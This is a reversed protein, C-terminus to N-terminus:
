NTSAGKPLVYQIGFDKVNAEIPELGVSERRKNVNAEDEIPFFENLGTEPNTRVQSGYLQKKGMRTLVRDELLALNQPAAKGHKVAARMMPLYNVQTASDAHQIVLFLALAGQQGVEEPGLWGRSDLLSKVAILNTSDQHYIKKWLSDIQPSQWGFTKKISDLMLRDIQDTLYISDLLHALPKDLKADAKLKNQQVKSVLGRWRKDAHLLDLDPDNLMQTTDAYADESCINNLYGFAKDANGSLAWCCAANYKDYVLGSGNTFAFLSDFVTAAKLYEKNEYYAMAREVQQMYHHNPIFSKSATHCGALLVAICIIFANSM